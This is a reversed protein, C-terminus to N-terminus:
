GGRNQRLAILPGDSPPERVDVVCEVMWDCEEEPLAPDLLTQQAVFTRPEAGPAIRTLPPRRARPTVDIRAHEAFYPQLAAELQRADLESGRVRTLAEDWRKQALSAVLRHLEGRVRVTLAKPDHAFDHME